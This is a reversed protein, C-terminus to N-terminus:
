GMSECIKRLKETDVPKTSPFTGAVVQNQKMTNRRKEISAKEAERRAEREQVDALSRVGDRSYSQLIAKIYSWSSKKDDLAVEIAKCCVDAGMLKTYSKLEDICSPSPLANVRNLYLNMVKALETDAPPPAPEEGAPANGADAERIPNPNSESQIPNRPCKSEYSIMQKCISEHQEDTGDEAHGEGAPANGAADPSPYKSRKARVSQHCNWTPLYLYPKGEFEYLAVMGASALRNIAESVARATLSEKLPFLRNKIIAPRGDFRGYDDCNVILRYFLVEEFWSLGDISDSTCISEKIIRNPM